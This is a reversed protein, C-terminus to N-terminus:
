QSDGHGGDRDGAHRVGALRVSGPLGKLVLLNTLGPRRLDADILLTKKGAQAFSVALNALVTTKGDGPEAAPLVALWPRPRTAVFALTTRLTRFAESEVASPAVHMQLAGLGYPELDALRRVMALVPVGLQNRLDEPSRFRDDLTDLTYVLALGITWGWRGGAADPAM